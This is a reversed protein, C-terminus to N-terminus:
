SLHGLFRLNKPLQFKDCPDLIAQQLQEMSVEPQIIGLRKSPNKLNKSLKM